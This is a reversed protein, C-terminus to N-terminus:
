YIIWHNKGFQKKRFLRYGAATFDMLFISGLLNLQNYLEWSLPMKVGVQDIAAIGIQNFFLIYKYNEM